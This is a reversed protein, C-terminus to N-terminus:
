TARKREEEAEDQEVENVVVAKPAKIVALKALEANAAAVDPSAVVDIAVDVQGVPVLVSQVKIEPLRVSSTWTTWADAVTRSEPAVVVIEGHYFGVPSDDYLSFVEGGMWHFITREGDWEGLPLFTKDILLPIAQQQVSLTIDNADGFPVSLVMPAFEPGSDDVVIGPSIPVIRNLGGDEGDVFRLKIYIEQDIAAAKITAGPRRIIETTPLLVADSSAFTIMDQSTKINYVRADRVSVDVTDFTHQLPLRALSISAMESAAAFHVQESFPLQVNIRHVFHKEIDIDSGVNFDTRNDVFCRYLDRINEITTGTFIKDMMQFINSIRQTASMYAGEFKLLFKMAYELYMPMLTTKQVVLDYNLPPLPPLVDLVENTTTDYVGLGLVLFAYASSPTIPVSYSSDTRTQSPLVPFALARNTERYMLFLSLGFGAPVRGSLFSERLGTFRLIVDEIGGIGTIIGLVSRAMSRGTATAARNNAIGTFRPADPGPDGLCRAANRGSFHIGGDPVNFLRTGARLRVLLLYLAKDRSSGPSGFEGPDSTRVAHFSGLPDAIGLSACIHTIISQDEDRSTPIFAMLILCTLAGFTTKPTASLDVTFADKSGAAYTQSTKVAFELADDSSVSAVSSAFSQDMRTWKELPQVSIPSRPYNFAVRSKAFDSVFHVHKAFQVFASFRSTQTVGHVVVSHAIRKARVERSRTITGDAEARKKIPYRSSQFGWNVKTQLYYEKESITNYQLLNTQVVHRDYLGHPLFVPKSASLPEVGSPYPFAIANGDDDIWEEDPDFFTYDQKREFGTQTNYVGRLPDFKSGNYKVEPGYQDFQGVELTAAATFSYLDAIEDRTYLERAITELNTTLEGTFRPSSYFDPNVFVTSGNAFVPLEPTGSYSEVRWDIGAADLKSQTDRDM